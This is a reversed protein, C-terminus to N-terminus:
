TNNKSQKELLINSVDIHRKDVAYDNPTLGSDDRANVLANKEVLLKATSLYGRIAAWHLPTEGNNGKANIDAGADILLEVVACHGNEAACHLPTNGKINRSNLRAGSKILFRVIETRDNLSAKHLPTFGYISQAEINAGESVLKVVEPLHGDEAAYHLPTLEPGFITHKRMASLINVFPWLLRLFAVCICLLAVAYTVAEVHPWLRHATLGSAFFWFGLGLSRFTTGSVTSELPLPGEKIGWNAEIVGSKIFSEYVAISTGAVWNGLVVFVVGVIVFYLPSLSVNHIQYGLIGLLPFFATFLLGILAMQKMRSEARADEAPIKGFLKPGLLVGLLDISAGFTYISAYERCIRDLNAFLYEPSISLTEMSLDECLANLLADMRRVMAGTVHASGILVGRLRAAALVRNCLLANARMRGVVTMFRINGCHGNVDSKTDDIM